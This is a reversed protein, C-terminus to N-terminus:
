NRALVGPRFSSELLEPMEFRVPIMIRTAAERGDRMAPKFTWQEIATLAAASFERHSSRIVETKLVEGTPGVLALVEVRGTVGKMRCDMPYVPQVQNLPLAPVDGQVTESVSAEVEDMVVLNAQPDTDPAACAMALGCTFSLLSTVITKM